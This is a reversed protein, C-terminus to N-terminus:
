TTSVPREPAPVDANVVHCAVRRGDSRRVLPPLDTSCRDVALPCRPHFACGSPPSAIDPVEGPINELPEARSRGIDPLARLLAQSYPHLPNTGLQEADMDEVIRGAYMVLVRHCNQSVLALNHSILIVATHHNRNVDDLLEMVQAQVTVDLATTPEDALLLAPEKMLGMAIMARQRMGGSFEHPFRSLQAEAGPIQVETLASVALERAQKRSLGRHVRVAQTLQTGIRLAPNLSSMPDQFVVALKTGLLKDLARRPLSRMDKGFMEIEGSVVGPYPTLQAVALATM